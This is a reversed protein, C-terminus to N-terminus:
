CDSSFGSERDFSRSLTLGQNGSDVGSEVVNKTDGMQRERPLKQLLHTKENINLDEEETKSFDDCATDGPLQKRSAMKDDNSFTSSIESDAQFNEDEVFASDRFELDDTWYLYDATVSHRKPNTTHSAGGQSKHSLDALSNSRCAHKSTKASKKADSSPLDQQWGTNAEQKLDSMSIQQKTLQKRKSTNAPTNSKLCQKELITGLEKSYHLLSRDCILVDHIVEGSLCLSSKQCSPCQKFTVTGAALGKSGRSRSALREGGGSQGDGHSRPKRTRSGGSRCHCRREKTVSEAPPPDPKSDYVLPTPSEQACAGLQVDNSQAPEMGISGTDRPSSSSDLPLLPIGKDSDLSDNADGEQLEACAVASRSSSSASSEAEQSHHASSTSRRESRILASQEQARREALDNQEVEVVSNHLEELMEEEAPTTHSEKIVHMCVNCQRLTSVKGQVGGSGGSGGGSSRSSGVGKGRSSGMGNSAWTTATRSQGSNNLDVNYNILGGSVSNSERKEVNFFSNAGSPRRSSSWTSGNRNSIRTLRRSVGTEELRKCLKVCDKKFQKTLIAYLFPNACSNLPLVFITFIKADDLSILEKGFAATLSFFTIPAWCAFDTFVLLAMRKAVRSDNSNWAHSGRISCYMKMYCSVIVSFSIGNFLMIFCVYGLSATDGIEFPLCVAFKRYDSIGFLPLTAVMIAFMWGGIMIYGARKLSLRKNLQMAHTIAYFRELTIVTLTFVSLESSLVGLFGAILCGPSTQWKIAHKKFEGLTSADVIALFGLYIGMCFDACALNCILFRPVDMKSRSSVSVFLVVGNGLVSLLFVLWVGCRLLWCGFLDVCPMFPGPLPKCEIPPKPLVIDEAYNQPKYDEFYEEAVTPIEYDYDTGFGEYLTHVLDEESISLNDLPALINTLNHLLSSDYENYRLWQIDERLEIEEEMAEEPSEIFECCHYAYSLTLFRIKPFVEPAPFDQLEKNHYTKLHKLNSLGETPLEPFDNEGLNLDDLLSLSKFAKPHISKIKNHLLDLYQLRDLGSFAHEPIHTIYNHSLTLDRLQSLGLFPEGELSTLKNNGLNLIRLERCESLDPIDLIRNSHIDFSQLKPLILCIDPPIAEISARDFGLIKISESGTLDPFVEQDRAESLILKELHPLNSFAKPGVSTIPNGKLQLYVLNQNGSFCEDPLYEIQNDALTLDNLETLSYLAVPVQTLENKNIELVRLGELGEFAHDGVERIYNDHLLLVALRTNNYFAYDPVVTIQNVSLWLVELDSALGVASVPVTKLKNGNLWLHKLSHMDEFSDDPVTDIHNTDLHLQEVSGLCKLAQSPVVKFQNGTLYLIKLSHLGSFVKPPLNKLQNGVLLLEQLHPLSAFAYEPLQSINNMSLDLQTTNPSLDMPVSTLNKRQCGVEIGFTQIKCVCNEPCNTIIGLDSCVVWDLLSLEFFMCVLVAAWATRWAM